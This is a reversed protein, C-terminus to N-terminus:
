RRGRPAASRGSTGSSGRTPTTPRSSAMSERGRSSQMATEQKGRDMGAFASQNRSSSPQRTSTPATTNNGRSPQTGRSDYRNGTSASRGPAPAGTAKAQDYGRYNQRANTNGRPPQGYRQAVTNDRYPVGKRHDPNHQWTQNNIKAANVNTNTVNTNSISTSRNVNVNVNGNHWNCSGWNNSWAAGVAVGLGFSVMSTAVMAGAPYVPYPPYAPYPWAGYVVVPDYTPVYVVTPSAPVIEIVQDQVVVKQQSTTKLNGKAYAKSRLKQVTDMVDKQQSLFADGLKETWDLKDSMMSLVQPFPILSKVSMDWSQKDVAASLADGKLNKNQKAWRDAEVVELPYTAAMLIQAVLADPYLAIPAVLQDLEEQKFKASQTPNGQSFVVPPAALLLILLGLLSRIFIRRVRM